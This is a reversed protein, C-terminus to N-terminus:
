VGLPHTNSRKLENTIVVRALARSDFLWYGDAGRNLSQLLVLCTDSLSMLTDGSEVGVDHKLNSSRMRLMVHCKWGLYLTSKSM